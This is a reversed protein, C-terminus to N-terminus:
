RFQKYRCGDKGKLEQGHQHLLDIFKCARALLAQVGEMNELAQWRVDVSARM